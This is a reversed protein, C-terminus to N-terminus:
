YEGLACWGYSQQRAAALAGASRWVAVELRPVCWSANARARVGVHGLGCHFPSRAARDMLRFSVSSATDIRNPRTYVAAPPPPPPPLPPLSCPIYVSLPAWRPRCRFLKTATKKPGQFKYCGQLTRWESKPTFLYQTPPKDQVILYDRLLTWWKQQHWKRLKRDKNQLYQM